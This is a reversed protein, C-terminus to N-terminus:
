RHPLNSTSRINLERLKSCWLTVERKSSIVYPTAPILSKSAAWLFSLIDGITDKISDINGLDKNDNLFAKGSAVALFGLESLSTVGSDLFTKALFPLFSILTRFEFNM